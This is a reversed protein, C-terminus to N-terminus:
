EKRIEAHPDTRIQYLARTEPADVLCVQDMDCKFTGPYACAGPNRIRLEENKEAALIQQVTVMAERLWRDIQDDGIHHEERKYWRVADRRIVELRDLQESTRPLFREAEQKVLASLYVEPLTDCAASSVYGMPEGGREQDDLLVQLGTEKAAKKTFKNVRPESPVKRRSLSWVFLGVPADNYGQFAGQKQLEQVAYIYGASQTDLQLRGEYSDVSSTFKHDWVVIRQAEPDYTVLDIQGAYGVGEIPFPVSFPIETGLLRHRVMADWMGRVTVHIGDSVEDIQRGIEEEDGESESVLGEGKTRVALQAANICRDLSVGTPQSEMLGSRKLYQAMKWAARIGEHGLTGWSAPTAKAALGLMEIYRFWWRNPCMRFTSIESNTVLRM